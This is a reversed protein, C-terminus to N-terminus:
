RTSNSGTSRTAAGTRPLAGVDRTGRSRSVPRTSASSWTTKKSRHTLAANFKELYAETLSQAYRHITDRGPVTELGLEARLGPNAKLFSEMDRYSMKLYMRLLNVLLLRDSSYGPRGRGRQGPAAPLPRPPGVLKVVAKSARLFGELEGQRKRHYERWDTLQPM